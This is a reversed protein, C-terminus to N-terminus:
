RAGGLVLEGILAPIYTAASESRPCMVVFARGASVAIPLCRGSDYIAQKRLDFDHPNSDAGPQPVTVAM